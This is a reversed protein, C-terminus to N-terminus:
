FVGEVDKQYVHISAIFHSFTGVEQGGRMAIYEQLKLALWCDNQFHTAMDCSRMHYTMNLRGGRVQFQYGLSCPVRNRGLRRPDIRPDWVSVWLQRSSPDEIIRNIVARVQGGTGLRDAYTYEFVAKGSEPDFTLFQGWVDRRSEWAKGPNDRADDWAGVIGQRREEWELEAWPQVPNLHAFKPDTVTYGYNQLELTEFEKKGAIVKNQMTATKVRIGMEKLDRRLEEHAERFDTFIRM